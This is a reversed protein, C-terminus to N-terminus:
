REQDTLNKYSTNPTLSHNETTTFSPFSNPTSINLKNSSTTTEYFTTGIPFHTGSTEFTNPTSSSQRISPLTSTKLTDLRTTSVNTSSEPTATSNSDNLVSPAACCLQPLNFGGVNEKGCILSKQILNPLYAPLPRTLKSILELFPKCLFYLVCSGVGENQFICEEGTNNSVLLTFIKQFNLVFCNIM